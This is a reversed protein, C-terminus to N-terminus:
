GGVRAYLVFGISYVKWAASTCRMAFWSVAYAGCYTHYSANDCKSEYVLEARCM